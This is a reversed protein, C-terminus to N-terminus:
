SAMKEIEWTSTVLPLSTLQRSGAPASRDRRQEDLVGGLELRLQGAGLLREGRRLLCGWRRRCIGLGLRLLDGREGLLDGVVALQDGDGLPLRRGDSRRGTPEHGTKGRLRALNHGGAFRDELHDVRGDHVHRGAQQEGVDLGDGRTLGGIDCRGPERSDVEVPVTSVTLAMEDAPPSSPM